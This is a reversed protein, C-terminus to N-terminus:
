RIQRRTTWWIGVVNVFDADEVFLDALWDLDQANWADFFARTVDEGTEYTRTM